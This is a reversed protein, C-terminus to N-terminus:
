PRWPASASRIVGRNRLHDYVLWWIRVLLRMEWRNFTDEFVSKQDYTLDGYPCENYIADFGKEEIQNVFTRDTFVKGTLWLIDRYETETNM